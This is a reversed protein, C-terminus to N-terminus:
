RCLCGVKLKRLEGGINIHSKYIFLIHALIWVCEKNSVSMSIMSEIQCSTLRGKNVSSIGISYKYWLIFYLKYFIEQVTTLFQICSLSERFFTNLFSFWNLNNSNFRPIHNFFNSSLIVINGFNYLTIM